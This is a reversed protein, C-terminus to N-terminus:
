DRGRERLVAAVADYAPKARGEGDFLLPQGTYREPYDRWSTLWSRDDTVGWFTIREVGADLCAAVLERYYSAQTAAVDEPAEEVRHAVDLETVRVELGLEHFREVTERVQEPTPHVGVCHLQLGIGDIPVGRELLGSLLRYTRDRKARDYPLGYDNYLLDADTHKAAARFAEAVYGEGLEELWFTERLGGSDAVAENVVVWSDIRDGYRGVVRRVHSRLAAALAERDRSRGTLWGPNEVHWVLAHGTVSMDHREAFGVLRDAPGFAYREPEPHVAGWKLDNELALRGFEGGLLAAYRRDSLYEATACAGVEVGAAAALERLCM